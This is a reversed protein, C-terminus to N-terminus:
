QPSAYLNTTSILTYYFTFAVVNGAPIQAVYGNHKDATFPIPEDYIRISLNQSMDSALASLVIDSQEVSTSLDVRSAKKFSGLTYFDTSTGGGVLTNECHVRNLVVGSDAFLGFMDYSLAGDGGTITVGAKPAVVGLSIGIIGSENLASFVFTETTAENNSIGIKYQMTTGVSQSSVPISSVIKQGELTNLDLTGTQPAKAQPITNRRYYNDRKMKSYSNAM